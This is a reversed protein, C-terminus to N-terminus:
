DNIWVIYVDNWDNSIANIEYTIIWTWSNNTINIAYDYDHIDFIYPTWSINISWDSLFFGSSTIINGSEKWIVSIDKNSNFINKDIKNITTKWNIDSLEIKLKISNVNLPIKTKINNWINNSNYNISNMLYDNIFFVTKTDNPPIVWIVYRRAYDDNDYTRSNIDIKWITNWSYFSATYDDNNAADNINDKGDVWEWSCKVSNESIEDDVSIIWWSCSINDNQSWDSNTKEYFKLIMNESNTKNQTLKRSIMSDDLFYYDNEIIMYVIVWFLMVMFTMLLIMVIYFWDRKNRM